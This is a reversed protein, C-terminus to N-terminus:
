EPCRPDDGQGDFLALGVPTASKSPEHDSNPDVMRAALPRWDRALGDHPVSTGDKSRPLAWYWAGDRGGIREATIGLQQKGRELTRAKIGAREARRKLEAAPEPGSDLEAELFRKAEGIAGGDHDEARALLDRGSLSSAGDPV